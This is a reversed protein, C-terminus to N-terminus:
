QSPFTDDGIQIDLGYTHLYHDRIADFFERMQNKTLKALSPVEEMHWEMFVGKKEPHQIRIIVPSGDSWYRRKKQLFMEKLEHKIRDKTKYLGNTAMEFAQIQELIPKHFARLQANTKEHGKPKIILQVSDCDGIELFDKKMAARDPILLQGKVISADYTLQTFDPMVPITKLSNYAIGM